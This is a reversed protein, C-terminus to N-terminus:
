MLKKLIRIKTDKRGGLFYGAILGLTFGASLMAWNFAPFLKMLLYGLVLGAVMGFFSYLYTFYFPTFFGHAKQMHSALRGILRDYERRSKGPVNIAEDVKRAVEAIDSKEKQCVPCSKSFSGVREVNRKFEDVRFFRLDRKRTAKLKEDVQFILQEAWEEM